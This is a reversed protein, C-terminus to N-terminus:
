NGLSCGSQLPQRNWCTWNGACATLVECAEGTLRRLIAGEVMGRHGAIFIRKRTLDFHM